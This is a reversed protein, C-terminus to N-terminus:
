RIELLSVEPPVRFRVPITSTGIGTSVFLYRGGEHVLGAAYRQGYLSPVVLRGFLPLDVQGGHTHGAVTLLCADTLEPFSDPSHTFCLARSGPPVGKLDLAPEIAGSAADALGILPLPGRPTEIIRMQHFLMPIHAAEFVAAIHRYDDATDHNGFVAYVGLPARLAALQRVITEIPIYGPASPPSIVYDGALLVIDPRAANTLAVVRRINDEDIFRSGAHLDAIVAIRLGHFPRTAGQLILPYETLRLSAPELWFADLGLAM